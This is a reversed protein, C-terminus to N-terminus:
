PAPHPGAKDGLVFEASIRHLPRYHSPNKHTKPGGTKFFGWSKKLVGVGSTPTFLGGNQPPWTEAGIKVGM